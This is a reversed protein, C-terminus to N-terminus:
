IVARDVHDITLSQCVPEGYRQHRTNCIYAASSTGYHLRMRCGCRGCVVLGQLLGGGRRPAGRSPKFQTSNDQLAARITIACCCTSKTSPSADARGPDAWGAHAVGTVDGSAMSTPAQM